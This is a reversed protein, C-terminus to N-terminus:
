LNRDATRTENKKLTDMSGVSDQHTVLYGSSESRCSECKRASSTLYLLNRMAAFATPSGTVGNPVVEGARWDHM